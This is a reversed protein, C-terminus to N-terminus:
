RALSLALDRLIYPNVPFGRDQPFSYLYRAGLESTRINPENEMFSAFADVQASQAIKM